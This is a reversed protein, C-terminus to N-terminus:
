VAAHDECVLKEGRGCSFARWATRELPQLRPLAADVPQHLDPEARCRHCRSLGVSIGVAYRTWWRRRHDGGPWYQPHRIRPEDRRLAFFRDAVSRWRCRYLATGALGDITMWRQAIKTDPMRPSPGWMAPTGVSEENVRIRSFSNWQQAAPARLEFQDKAIIPAIGGPQVANNLLAAGALLVALGAPYHLVPWGTIRLPPGIPQSARWAARFCAGALATAAGVAILASIGDIWTLLALAGLCGSAAGLLDIGYVQGVPWPSRTLALSIAMGAFVYPPLMSLILRLWLLMEMTSGVSGLVVSSVLTVASVVISVAMAVSIWALHELFREARFVRPQAYVILAGATMGFMAMSIAFFALYYWAIVSLLRTEAIQLVLGCMCILFLGGFFPWKANDVPRM